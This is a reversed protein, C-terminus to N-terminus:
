VPLLPYNNVMASKLKQSKVVCGSIFRAYLSINHLACPKFTYLTNIHKAVSCIKPMRQVPYNDKLKYIFSCAVEVLM